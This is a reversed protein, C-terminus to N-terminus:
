PVRVCTSTMQETSATTSTGPVPLWVSALRRLMGQKLKHGKYDAYQAAGIKLLLQLDDFYICSTAHLCPLPCQAVDLEDAVKVALLHQSLLDHM